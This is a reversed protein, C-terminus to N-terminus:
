SAMELEREAQKATLEGAFARHQLSTFLADLKAIRNIQRSRLESIQTVRVAFRKQVEVPPLPIHIRNLLELTLYKTSTGKSLKKLELLRYELAFRAYHYSNASDILTIVYTRQYANFKGVYHKVSYDANANNGALLLAECDFAFKDIWFDEKACTFFPYEGSPVAANSDLRGTRFRFFDQLAIQPWRPESSTPDGFLEVFSSRTLDDLLKAGSQCKSRLEDAQDLIAAIRRQELLSPLPIPIRVINQRIIQPQSSGTIVDNFGRHLLFARLFQIDVRGINLSDLAMANGNAYAMPPTVHVTGCSGRCGVLITPDAHTFTNFHGIQGNAGFVPYGQSAMEAKALTPWQKPECLDGLSVRDWSM